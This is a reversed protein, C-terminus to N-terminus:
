WSMIIIPFYTLIAGETDDWRKKYLFGERLFSKLVSIDTLVAYLLEELWLFEVFYSVNTYQRHIIFFYDERKFTYKQLPYFHSPSHVLHTKPFVNHTQGATKIM